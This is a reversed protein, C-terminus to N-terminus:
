MFSMHAEPEIYISQVNVSELFLKHGLSVRTKTSLNVKIEYVQTCVTLVAITITCVAQTWGVIGLWYAVFHEFLALYKALCQLM